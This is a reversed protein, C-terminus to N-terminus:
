TEITGVYYFFIVVYACLLMPLFMSSSLNYEVPNDFETQINEM